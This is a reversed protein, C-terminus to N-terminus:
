LIPKRCLPCRQDNQVSTRICKMHFHQRCCPVQSWLTDVEKEQYAELCISCTTNKLENSSFVSILTKGESPVYKPIYARFSEEQVQEFTQPFAQRIINSFIVLTNFNGGESRMRQYVVHNELDVPIAILAETVFPRLLPVSESPSSPRQVTSPATPRPMYIQNLQMQEERESPTLMDWLDEEEEQKPNDKEQRASSLSSSTEATRNKSEVKKGDVVDVNVNVNADVDDDDDSICILDKELIQRKVNTSSTLGKSEDQSKRKRTNQSM